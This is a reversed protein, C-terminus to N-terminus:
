KISNITKDITKKSNFKFKFGLDNIKRTSYKYSVVDGKWGVRQKQFRILKQSKLKKKIKEVIYKVKVGDDSSGINFFNIKKKFKKKLFFCVIM